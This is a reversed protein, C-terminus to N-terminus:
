AEGEAVRGGPFSFDNYCETFLLLISRKRLVIGRTARRALTAGRVTVVDPHVLQNILRRSNTQTTDSGAGGGSRSVCDLGVDRVIQAHFLATGVKAASGSMNGTKRIGFM